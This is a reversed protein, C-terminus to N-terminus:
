QHYGKFLTLCQAILNGRGKKTFLDPSLTKSLTKRNSNYFFSIGMLTFIYVEFSMAEPVCGFQKAKQFIEKLADFHEKNIGPLQELTLDSELNAWALMKWFYPNREHISMYESLLIESLKAPNAAAVAIKETSILKMESLVNVLCIEFLSAKNGFYAYIRQKNVGASEAIVDVKTGHFGKEAFTKIAQSLIKERTKRARQQM